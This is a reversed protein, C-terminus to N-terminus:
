INRAAVGAAFEVFASLFKVGHARKAPIMRAAAANYDSIPSGDSMGDIFAACMTDECAADGISELLRAAAAEAGALWLFRKPTERYRLGPRVVVL